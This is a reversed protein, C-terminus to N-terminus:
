MSNAFGMVTTVTDFLTLYTATYKKREPQASCGSLLLCVTLFLSLIRKM